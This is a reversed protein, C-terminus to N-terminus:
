RRQGPVNKEEGEGKIPTLVLIHSRKIWHGYKTLKRRKLQTALAITKLRMLRNDVSM